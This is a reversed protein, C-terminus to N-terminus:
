HLHDEPEEVRDTLRWAQAQPVRGEVGATQESQSCSAARPLAQAAVVYHETLACSGALPMGHRAPAVGRRDLIDRDFHVPGGCRACSVPAVQGPCVVTAQPDRGQHQTRASSWWAADFPSIGVTEPRPLLGEDSLWSASLYYAPAAVGGSERSEVYIAPAEFHPDASWRRVLRERPPGALHFFRHGVVVRTLRDAFVFLVNGLKWSPDLSADCVKLKDAVVQGDPRRWVSVLKIEIRDEWDLEARSDHAELGLHWQLANGFRGRSSRGSLAACAPLLPLGM